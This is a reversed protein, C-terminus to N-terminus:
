EIVAEEGFKAALDKQFREMFYTHGIVFRSVFRFFPNPVEGRETITLRSGGAGDAAIDYEWRGSFPGGEDAITRVLRRPANMEATELTIPSGDKYVERWVERGEHDPLREVRELDQRWAPQGGYDTIVRWVAEPPQRTKLTRTAVHQRPISLGIAIVILILSTLVAVPALIWILLRRRRM